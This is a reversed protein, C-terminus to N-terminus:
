KHLLFRGIPMVGNNINAFRIKHMRSGSRTHAQACYEPYGAAGLSTRITYLQLM